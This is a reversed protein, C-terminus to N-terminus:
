MWRNTALTRSLRKAHAHGLNQIAQGLTSRWRQNMFTALSKTDALTAASFRQLTFVSSALHHEGILLRRTAHDAALDMIKHFCLMPLPSGIIEFLPCIVFGNSPAHPTSFCDAWLDSVLPEHYASPQNEHSALLQHLQRQHDAAAARQHMRVRHPVAALPHSLPAAAQVSEKAAEARSAVKALSRRNRILKM